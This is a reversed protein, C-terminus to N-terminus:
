LQMELLKLIIYYFAIMQMALPEKKEAPTVDICYGNM